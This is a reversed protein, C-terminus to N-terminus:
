RVGGDQARDGWLIVRDATVRGSSDGSFQHRASSTELRERSRGQPARCIVPPDPPTRVRWHWSALSTDGWLSRRGLRVHVAGRSDFGAGCTKCVHAEGVPETRITGGSPTSGGVVANTACRRRDRLPPTVPVPGQTLCPEGPFRGPTRLMSSGTYLVIPLGSRWCGKDIRHM